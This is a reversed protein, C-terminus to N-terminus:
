TAESILVRDRATTTTSLPKEFLKQLHSNLTVRSVPAQVFSIAEYEILADWSAPSDAVVILARAGVQVIMRYLIEMDFVTGEIKEGAHLASSALIIDIGGTVLCDIAEGISSRIVLIAVQHELIVRLTSQKIPNAEIVLLVSESLSRPTRRDIPEAAARLDRVRCLPLTTVFVSGCEAGNTVAIDGGMARALSRAISLGLGTGGFKRAIGPDLQTFKEFVQDRSSFPIGIGTDEVKIILYERVGKRETIVSISVGGVLTFKVANSLLNSVIQRLRRPDGMISSPCEDLFVSLILGSADAQAKWLQATDWMLSFLDMECLELKVPGADIKSLDLLDDVLLRMTEGATHILLIRERLENGLLTDALLVQTMGLVGNLPTRIEHSTTALFQSKAKLANELEVNIQLLRINVDREVKHRQHISRLYLGLLAALAIAFALLVGLALQNQRARFRTFIIERQLQRAKLTEIRASQNSFDFRATMLSSSNSAALKRSQDKLQQYLEFHRLARPYDGQRRYVQYATEHIARYLQTNDNENHTKFLTDLLATARVIQNTELALRAATGLLVPRWAEAGSESSIRLGSAISIDAAPIHGNTMQAIALNNLIQAQLSPSNLRGALMLARGYERQSELFRGIEDLANARNTSASLDLMLDGSFTDVAQNYYYLARKPDGADQYILGIDQLTAAQARRDKVIAFVTFAKQYDILALQVQDRSGEVGARSVLLEGYLKSRPQHSVVKMAENILKEAQSANDLRLASEGQLWQSTAIAIARRPDTLPARIALDLSASALRESRVPDLTLKGQAATALQNAAILPDIAAEVRPTTAADGPFIPLTLLFPLLAALYSVHRRM